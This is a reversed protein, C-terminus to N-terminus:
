EVPTLIGNFTNVEINRARCGPASTALKNDLHSIGIIMSLM